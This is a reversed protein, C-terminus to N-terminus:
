QASPSDDGASTTLMARLEEPKTSEDLLKVTSDVFLVAALDRGKHPHKGSISPKSRDNIQFSM